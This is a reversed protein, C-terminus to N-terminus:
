LSNGGGTDFDGSDLKSLQIKTVGHPNPSTQQTMNIMDRAGKTTTKKTKQYTCHSQVDHESIIDNDYEPLHIRRGTFQVYSM